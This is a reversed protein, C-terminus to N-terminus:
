DELYNYKLDLPDEESYKKKSVISEGDKSCIFIQNWIGIENYASM